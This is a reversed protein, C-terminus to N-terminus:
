QPPRPNVRVDGEGLVIFGKQGSPTVVDLTACNKWYRIRQVKPETGPQLTAIRTGECSEEDGAFLPTDAVVVVTHKRDQWVDYAWWVAVLGAILLTSVTAIVGVLKLRDSLVSDLRKM